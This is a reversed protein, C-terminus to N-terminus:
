NEADVLIHAFLADRIQIPHQARLLAPGAPDADRYAPLFHHLLDDPTAAYVLDGGHEHDVWRLQYPSGTPTLPAVQDGHHNRPLQDSAIRLVGAGASDHDSTM